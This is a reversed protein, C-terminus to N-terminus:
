VVFDEIPQLHIIIDQSAQPYKQFNTLFNGIAVSGCLKEGFSVNMLSLQDMCDILIVLIKTYTKLVISSFVLHFIKPKTSLRTHRFILNKLLASFDIKAIGIPENKTLM